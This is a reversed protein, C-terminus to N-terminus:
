TVATERIVGSCLRGISRRAIAIGARLQRATM